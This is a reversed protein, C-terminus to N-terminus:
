CHYIIIQICFICIIDNKHNNFKCISKMNSKFLNLNVEERKTIQKQEEIKKVLEERKKTFIKFHFLRKLLKKLNINNYLVRDTFNVIKDHYQKINSSSSKLSELKGQIILLKEIKEEIEHKQINIQQRAIRMNKGMGRKYDM